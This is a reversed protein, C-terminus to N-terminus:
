RIEEAGDPETLSAVSLDNHVELGPLERRVLATIEECRAPTTVTGTLFVGGGTLAVTVDLENLQHALAEQVRGIRYEDPESPTSPM